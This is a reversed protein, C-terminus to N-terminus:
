TVNAPKKDCNPAHLRLLDKITLTPVPTMITWGCAVCVVSTM